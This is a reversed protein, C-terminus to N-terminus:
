RALFSRQPNAARMLGSSELSTYMATRFVLRLSVGVARPHMLEPPCPYMADRGLLSSKGKQALLAGDDIPDADPSSYIRAGTLFLTDAAQASVACGMLMALIFQWIYTNVFM